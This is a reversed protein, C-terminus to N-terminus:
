RRSENFEITIEAQGRAVPVTAVRGGSWRVWVATPPEPTGLVQVASDQSWYGSGGHIERMPGQGGPFEVRLQTGFGQPNGPPGKLRVRLGPKGQVNHFLKTEAGNQTMVLDIRGDEDYDCLACGRQEGYVSIGSAESPVASFNGNGEGRLWLGRGADLRATQPDTDFFNQSLFVDEKGDGDYDGVCIGFAPSFQAERPLPRAEFHNGRNLFVTSELTNAELLRVGSMKEKLVDEVSASAYEAQTGFRARVWPMCSALANLGQWPVYRKLDTAYYAELTQLSGDGNLDGYYLRLPHSRYSEYKTNRGWNSVIIDM